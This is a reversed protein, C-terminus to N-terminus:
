SGQIKEGTLLCVHNHLARTVNRPFYIDSYFCCTIRLLFFVFNLYYLDTVMRPFHYFNVHHKVGAAFSDVSFQDSLKWEYRHRRGQTMQCM